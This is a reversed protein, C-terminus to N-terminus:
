WAGYWTARVLHSGSRGGGARGFLDSVQGLYVWGSRYTVGHAGLLRAGSTIPVGSRSAHWISGARAHLHAALPLRAATSPFVLFVIPRTVPPQPQKTRSVAVAHNHKTM